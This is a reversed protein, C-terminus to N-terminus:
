CRDYQLQKIYECVQKVSVMYEDCLQLLRNEDKTREKRLIDYVVQAKNVPKPPELFGYPKEDEPAEKSVLIYKEKNAKSRKISMLEHINNDRTVEWVGRRVHKVKGYATLEMMIHRFIHSASSYSIM